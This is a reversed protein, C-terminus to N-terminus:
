QYNSNNYKSATITTNTTATTTTTTTTIRRTIIIAILYRIMLLLEFDEIKLKKSKYIHKAVYCRTSKRCRIAMPDDLLPRVHHTKYIKISGFSNRVVVKGVHCRGFTTRFRRLERSIVDFHAECCLSTYKKGTEVQM